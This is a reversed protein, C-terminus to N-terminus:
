HLVNMKVTRKNASATKILFYIITKVEKFIGLTVEM